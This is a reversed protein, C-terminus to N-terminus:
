VVWIMLFSLIRAIASGRKGDTDSLEDDGKHIDKEGELEHTMASM